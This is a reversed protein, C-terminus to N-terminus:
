LRRRSWRCRVVTSDGPDTAIYHNSIPYASVQVVTTKSVSKNEVHELFSKLVDMTIGHQHVEVGAYIGIASSQFYAFEMANNTCSPEQLALFSTMQQGASLLHSALFDNNGEVQPQHMYISSKELVRNM